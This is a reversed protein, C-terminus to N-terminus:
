MDKVFSFFRPLFHHQLHFLKLFLLLVDLLEDSKIEIQPPYLLYYFSLHFTARRRLIFSLFLFSHCLDFRFIWVVQWKASIASLDRNEFNLFFVGWLLYQRIKRLMKSDLPFNPLFCATNNSNNNYISIKFSSLFFLQQLWKHLMLLLLMWTDTQNVQGPPSNKQGNWMREALYFLFVSIQWWKIDLDINWANMWNEREREREPPLLASKQWPPM